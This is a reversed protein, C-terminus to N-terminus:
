LVEGNLESVVSEQVEEKEPIRKPQNFLNIWTNGVEKWDTKKAFALGKRVNRQLQSTNNKIQKYVVELMSTIDEMRGMKRYGQVDIMVREKCDYTYIGDFEKMNTHDGALIPTGTALAESAFLGWGEAL